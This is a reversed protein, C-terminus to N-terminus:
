ALRMIQGLSVKEFGYRSFLEIASKLIRERSKEKRNTSCSM